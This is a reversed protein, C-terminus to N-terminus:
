WHIATLGQIADFGGDNTLLPLNHQICLAAIWMDNVKSTGLNKTKQFTAARIEGYIRATEVDPLLAYWRELTSEIISRNAEPRASHSAGFFLEGIVTLPVVVREAADIPPPSQRDDRIYDVAANTDLALDIV